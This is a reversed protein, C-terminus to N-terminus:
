PGNGMGQPHPHPTSLLLRTEDFVNEADKMSFAPDAWLLYGVFIKKKLEITVQQKRFQGLM